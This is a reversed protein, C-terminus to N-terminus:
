TGKELPPHSPPTRALSDKLASLLAMTVNTSEMLQLTASEAARRAAAEEQSAERWADRDAVVADLRATLMKVRNDNALNLATVSDAHGSRILEIERAHADDREKLRVDVDKGRVLVGNLWLWLVLMTVGLAGIGNVLNLWAPLDSV